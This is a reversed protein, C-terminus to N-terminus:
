DVRIIKIHKGVWEVPLYVRGSDGSQKVEKEILEEGLIEFKVKQSFSTKAMNAIKKGM